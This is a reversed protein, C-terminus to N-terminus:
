WGSESAMFCPRGARRPMARRSCRGRLRAVGQGGRSRGADVRSKLPQGGQPYRNVALPLFVVIILVAAGISYFAAHDAAWGTSVPLNPPNHNGFLKRVADAVTTIPNWDAFV